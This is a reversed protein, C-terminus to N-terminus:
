GYIILLFRIRNNWSSQHYIGAPLICTAGNGYAGSFYRDGVLHTVNSYDPFTVILANQALCHSPTEHAPQIHYDLILGDWGIKRSSLFAKQPLLQLVSKEYSIDQIFVNEPSPKRSSTEKRM